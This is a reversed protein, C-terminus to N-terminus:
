QEMILIQPEPEFTLNVVSKVQVTSPAREAEVEWKAVTQEPVAPEADLQTAVPHEASHGVASTEGRAGEEDGEELEDSPGGQQGELVDKWLADLEEEAPSRPAM